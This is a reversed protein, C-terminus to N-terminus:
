EFSEEGSPPTPPAEPEPPSPKVAVAKADRSERRRQAEARVEAELRQLEEDDETPRPLSSEVSQMASAEVDAALDGFLKDELEAARSEAELSQPTPVDTETVDVDPRVEPPATARWADPEHPTPDAGVPPEANPATELVSWTGAENAGRINEEIVTKFHEVDLPLPEVPWAFGPVTEGLIVVRLLKTDPHIQLEELVVGGRDGEVSPHLIVLGPLLHGFAIVADAANTALVCEYGERALVRKVSAIVALDDAVLLVPPAAM